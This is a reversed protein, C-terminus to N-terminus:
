RKNNKNTQKRKNIKNHFRKKRKTINLKFDTSLRQVLPTNISQIGLINMIDANNLQVIIENDSIMIDFIAEKNYDYKQICNIENKSNSYM